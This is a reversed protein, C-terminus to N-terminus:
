RLGLRRRILWEVCLGLVGLLFLWAWDRAATRATGAVTAGSKSAISPTRPIFEDSYAEVAALGETGGEIRYRWSGPDLWVEARGAGDFRLTDTRPATGNWSVTLTARRRSWEM